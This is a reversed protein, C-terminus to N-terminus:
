RRRSIISASGYEGGLNAGCLICKESLPSNLSECKPCRIQVNNHPFTPLNITTRPNNLSFPDDSLYENSNNFIINTNSAMEYQSIKDQLKQITKQSELIKDKEQKIKMKEDAIIKNEQIIEDRVKNMGNAMWDEFSQEFVKVRPHDGFIEKKIQAASPNILFLEFNLNELAAKVTATINPDGFKHGIAILRTSSNLTNAFFWQLLNFPFNFVDEKQAPYIMTNVYSRLGADMDPSLKIIKQRSDDAWWNVSGHIKYLQINKQNLAEPNFSKYYGHKEEVFGDSYIKELNHCVEEIVVDYNTTFIKVTTIDSLAILPKYLLIAKPIDPTLCKDRIFKTLKVEIQEFFESIKDVESLKNGKARLLAIGHNNKLEKIQHVAKVLTEIDSGKGKDFVMDLLENSFEALFEKSMDETTPIGLAKSSGAGLLFVTAM